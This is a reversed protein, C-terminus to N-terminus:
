FKMDRYGMDFGTEPAKVHLHRLLNVPDECVADAFQEETRRLRSYLIKLVFAEVM